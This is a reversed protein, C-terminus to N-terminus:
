LDEGDHIESVGCAPNSGAWFRLKPKTSQLQATTIVVVGHRCQM